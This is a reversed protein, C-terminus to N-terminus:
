YRVCNEGSNESKDLITNALKAISKIRLDAHEKNTQFLIADKAQSVCIEIKVLTDFYEKMDCSNM